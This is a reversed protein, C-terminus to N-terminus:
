KKLISTVFIGCVYTKKESQDSGTLVSSLVYMVDRTPNTSICQTKRKYLNKEEKSFTVKIITKIM